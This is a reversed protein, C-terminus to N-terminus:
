RLIHPQRWCEQFVALPRLITINLPFIPMKTPDPITLANKRCMLLWMKETTSVQDTSNPGRHFFGTTWFMWHYQYAKRL